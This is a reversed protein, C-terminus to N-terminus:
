LVTINCLPALYPVSICDYECCHVYILRGHLAMGLACVNSLAMDLKRVCPAAYRCPWALDNEWFPWPWAFHAAESVVPANRLGMATSENARLHRSVASEDNSQMIFHEIHILMTM